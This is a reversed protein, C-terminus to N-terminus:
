RSEMAKVQERVWDLYGGSGAEVHLVIMEPEDYPHNEQIWAELEELRDATTKILGIVEMENEVKGKWRYISTVGPITNVCAALQSEVLQTGFQGAVEPNPFTTVVLIVPEKADNQRELM